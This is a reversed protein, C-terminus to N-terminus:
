AVRIRREQFQTRQRCPIHIIVFRRRGADDCPNPNDLPLFADNDRIIGRNLAAGVVRHGDLFM